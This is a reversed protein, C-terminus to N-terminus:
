RSGGTGGGGGREIWLRDVPDGSGRPRAADPRAPPVQRSPDAVSPEGLSPEVLSPASGSDPAAKSRLDSLLQRTEQHHDRETHLAERAARSGELFEAERKAMRQKHQRDLYYWALLVGLVFGIVLWLIQM